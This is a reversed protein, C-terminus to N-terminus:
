LGCSYKEEEAITMKNIISFTFIEKILIYTILTFKLPTALSLFFIKQKQKGM